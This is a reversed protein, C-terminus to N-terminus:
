RWQQPDLCGWTCGAGGKASKNMTGTASIHMLGNERMLRARRGLYMAGSTKRPSAARMCLSTYENPIRSHSIVARCTDNDDGNDAVCAHVGLSVDRHKLHWEVPKRHACDSVFHKSAVPWGNTERHISLNRRQHFQTPRTLGTRSGGHCLHQM